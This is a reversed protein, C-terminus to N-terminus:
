SPEGEPTATLYANVYGAHGATRIQTRYVVGPGLLLRAEDVVKAILTQAHSRTCGIRVRLIPRAM